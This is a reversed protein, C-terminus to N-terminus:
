IMLSWRVTTSTPLTSATISPSMSGKMRAKREPTRAPPAEAFTSHPHGLGGSRRGSGRGVGVLEDPAAVGLQVREAGAPEIGEAAAEGHGVPRALQHRAELLRGLVLELAEPLHAQGAAHH